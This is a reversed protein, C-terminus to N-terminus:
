QNFVNRADELIEDMWNFSSEELARIQGIVKKHITAVENYFLPSELLLLKDMNLVTFLIM